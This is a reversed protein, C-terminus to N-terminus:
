HHRRKKEKKKEIVILADVAKVSGESDIILPNIDVESIMPFKAALNSLGSLVAKIQAMDAKKEGRFEGLLAKSSLEDVMDNMDVDELPAIRFVADNLAETFVGGLGFMIVPGFQPDKFMGAVFERQGKVMPQVLLGELSNGGKKLIEEAATNVEHDSTLGIKVMGMESKHLLKTGLGKLVVPFGLERAAVAAKRASSVRKEQVVPISFANLVKKADDECLVHNKTKEANEIIEQATKM